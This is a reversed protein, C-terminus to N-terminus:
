NIDLFTLIVKSFREPYQYMWGHGAGRIQVLWALPIKEVLLLSAKPTTIVDETGVLVLTPQIIQSPSDYFGNWKIIAEAQKQTTELSVTGKLLPFYNIYEPNKQLWSQPFFLSLIQRGQEEPTGSINNLTEMLQPSSPIAKDGGPGSGYLILNNVKNPHVLALEQAIYSGMSWGFVDAKEINLADLLGATDNSLQSISYERVGLSSNETGRHNFVIVSYNSQVLEKLITPEWMDMTVKLGPIFIIPKDDRQQWTNQVEIEIDDVKAKQTPFNDIYESTQTVKSIDTDMTDSQFEQTM